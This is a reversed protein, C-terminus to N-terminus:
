ARLSPTTAAHLCFGSPWAEYRAADRSLLADGPNLVAVFRHRVLCRLEAHVGLLSFLVCFSFFFFAGSFFFFPPFV